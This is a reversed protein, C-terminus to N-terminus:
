ELEALANEALEEYKKPVFRESKWGRARGEKIRTQKEQNETEPDKFSWFSRSQPLRTNAKTDSTSSTSGSQRRIREEQGMTTTHKLDLLQQLHTSIQAHLATLHNLYAAQARSASPQGSKCSPTPSPPHPSDFSDNSNNASLNETRIPTDQASTAGSSSESPSVTFLDDLPTMMDQCVSYQIAKVTACSLPTFTRPWSFNIREARKNSKTHSQDLEPGLHALSPKDTRKRAHTSELKSVPDNLALGPLSLRSSEELRDKAQLCAELAKNYAAEAASIKPLRCVSYIHMIRALGEHSLAAYLSLFIVHAPEDQHHDLLDDCKRACEKYQHNLYLAKIYHLEFPFSPTIDVRPHLGKDM